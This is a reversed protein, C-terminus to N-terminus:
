LSMFDVRRYLRERGLPRPLSAIPMANAMARVNRVEDTAAKPNQLPLPAPAPAPEVLVSQAGVPTM